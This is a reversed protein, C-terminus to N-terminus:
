EQGEATSGTSERLSNEHGYVISQLDSTKGNGSGLFRAGALGAVLDLVTHWVVVPLLSDYAIRTWAFCTGLVGTGIAGGRGQYIHAIGFLLATLLAVLWPALGAKLLAAMAFGRFLFEECVGATVCLLAFLAFESRSHPFIRSALNRMKAVGPHQLSGMRKLNLWHLVAILAAGGATVLLLGPSFDQRLGLEFSTIGRATARWYAIAALPWQWAMASLYLKARDRPTVQAMALLRRIRRLGRWPLLVGLVLFLLCFDWPMAPFM